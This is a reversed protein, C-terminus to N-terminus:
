IIGENKFEKYLGFRKAKQEFWSCIKKIEDMSFDIDCTLANFAQFKTVLESLNNQKEKYNKGKIQLELHEFGSKKYGYATYAEFFRYTNSVCEKIVNGNNSNYKILILKNM